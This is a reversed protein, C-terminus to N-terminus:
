LLVYHIMGPYRLQGKPQDIVNGLQRYGSDENNLQHYCLAQSIGSPGIVDYIVDGM